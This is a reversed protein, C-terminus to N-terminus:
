EHTVDAFLLDALSAQEMEEQPMRARALPSAGLQAADARIQESATRLVILLPSKRGEDKNGHATDTTLLDLLADVVEAETQPLRRPRLQRYAEKRISVWMALDEVLAVDAQTLGPIDRALRRAIADNDAPLLKLRQGDATRLAAARSKQSKPIPGRSGM